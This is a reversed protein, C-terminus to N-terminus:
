KKGGRAEEDVEGRIRRRNFNGEGSRTNRKDERVGRGRKWVVVSCAGMRGRGVRTGQVIEIESGDLM